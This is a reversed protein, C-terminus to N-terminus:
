KVEKRKVKLKLGEMGVIQVKDGEEIVEDGEAVANWIEGQAFVLGEKLIKTKAIGVEGVVGEKGTIVKRRHARIAAGIGIFFFLTTFILMSLILKWSVTIFPAASSDILIFSGFALSIIGGIALVGHSPSFVELLLLICGLIILLLGALNIPLSQLGFFALILCIGGCVAGLGIGPSAFEYILGYIGLMLLIYAVNPDAIAHLFKERFNMKIEQPIIGKTILKIEKEEKKIVKGHIKKLLDSLDEAILDIVKLKLAEKETISKSKRVADEAWKVNRGKKEAISKVFAVLDNTIKDSITQQTKTGMRSFPGGGGLTVPHAAGIHTAPAMAVIDSALSIFVGASAARAGKPSIYTVIPIKSNLIEKVINHTSTVLGGPTDMEIILCTAKEKTAKKIANVLFRETVPNIVGEIKVRYIPKTKIKKQEVSYASL